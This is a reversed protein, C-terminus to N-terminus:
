SRDLRGCFFTGPFGVSSKCPVWRGSTPFWVYCRVLVSAPDSAQYKGCMGDYTRAAMAATTQWPRYSELMQPPTTDIRWADIYYYSTDGSTEGTLENLEPSFEFSEFEGNM